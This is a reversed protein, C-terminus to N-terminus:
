WNRGATKVAAIARFDAKVALLILQAATLGLTPHTKNM